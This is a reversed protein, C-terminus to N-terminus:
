ACHGAASTGLVSLSRNTSAHDAIGCRMISSTMSQRLHRRQQTDALPLCKSCLNHCKPMKNLSHKKDNVNHSSKASRTRHVHMMM